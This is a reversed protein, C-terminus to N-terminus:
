SGLLSGLAQTPLPFVLLMERIKQIRSSREGDGNIGKCHPAEGPTPVGRKGLGPTGTRVEVGGWGLM